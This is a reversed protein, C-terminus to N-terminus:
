RPPSDSRRYHLCIVIVVGLNGPGPVGDLLQNLPYPGLNQFLHVVLADAHVRVPQVVRRQEGSQHHLAADIPHVQVLHRHLQCLDAQPEVGKRYARRETEQVVVQTPAVREDAGVHAGDLLGDLHGCLPLVRLKTRDGLEAEKCAGKGSQEVQRSQHDLHDLLGIGRQGVHALAGPGKVPELLLESGVLLHEVEPNALVKSVVGGYLEQGLSV